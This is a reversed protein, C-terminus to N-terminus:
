IYKDHPHRYAFIIKGFASENEHYWVHSMGYVMHTYYVEILRNVSLFAPLVCLLCINVMTESKFFLKLIDTPTEIRKKKQNM